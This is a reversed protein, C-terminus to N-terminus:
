RDVITMASTCSVHLLYICVRTIVTVYFKVGISCVYYRSSGSFTKCPDDYEGRSVQMVDYFGNALRFITCYEYARRTVLVRALCPCPERSTPARRRPLLHVPHTYGPCHRADNTPSYRQQPIFSVPIPAVFFSSDKSRETVVYYGLLSVFQWPIVVTAATIKCSKRRHHGAAWLAATERSRKGNTHTEV